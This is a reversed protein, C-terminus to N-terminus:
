GANPSKSEGIFAAAAMLRLETDTIPFASRRRRDPTQGCQYAIQLLFAGHRESFGGFGYGHGEHGAVASALSTGPECERM